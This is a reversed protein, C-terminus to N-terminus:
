QNGYTLDKKIMAEELNRYGYYINDITKWDSKGNETCAVEITDCAFLQELLSTLSYSEVFDAIRFNPKAVVLCNNSWLSIVTSDIPNRKAYINLPKLLDNVIYITLHSNFVSM